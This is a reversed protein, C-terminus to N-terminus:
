DEPLLFKPLPQRTDLKMYMVPPWYIEVMKKQKTILYTRKFSVLYSEHTRVPMEKYKDRLPKCYYVSNYGNKLMIDWGHVGIAVIDVVIGSRIEGTGKKIRWYVPDGIKFKPFIRM